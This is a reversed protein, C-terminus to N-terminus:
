KQSHTKAQTKQTHDKEAHDVNSKVQNNGNNNADGYEPITGLVPEHEAM